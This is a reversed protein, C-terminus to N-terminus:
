FCVLIHYLTLDNIIRLCSSMIDDGKKINKRRYIYIYIHKDKM